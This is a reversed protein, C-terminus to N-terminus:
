NRLQKLEVSSTRAIGTTELTNRAREQALRL